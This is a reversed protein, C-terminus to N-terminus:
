RMKQELYKVFGIWAYMNGRTTFYIHYIVGTFYYLLKRRTTGTYIVKKEEIRHVLKFGVVLKQTEDDRGFGM